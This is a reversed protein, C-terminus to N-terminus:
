QNAQASQATAEPHRMSKMLGAAQIPSLYGPAGGVFQADSNFLLTTPFARIGMAAIVERDREATLELPIFGGEVMAIIQPNSWTEREMKRCYGCHESTVYVLIPTKFESAMQSAQQASQLWYIQPPTQAPGQGIAGSVIAVHVLVAVATASILRKNMITLFDLYKRYPDLDPMRWLVIIPM